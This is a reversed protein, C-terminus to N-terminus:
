RGLAPDDRRGRRVRRRAALLGRRRGGRRLGRARCPRARARGGPHDGGPVRQEQGGRSGGVKMLEGIRARRAVPRASSAPRTRTVCSRCARRRTRRAAARLIRGLQRYVWRARRQITAGNHLKGALALRVAEALPVWDTAPVEGRRERQYGRDPAPWAAPWSSGSGSTPSGPRPTPTSSRRAVRQRRLRDGRAARAPRHRRLPRAPSTACGPRSRGCSGLRGPAPVPPDDAGPRAEDLALVAVAGPHTVVVREAHQNDPMQVQDSRVTILWNSSSGRQRRGALARPHSGRAM